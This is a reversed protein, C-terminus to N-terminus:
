RSNYLVAAEGKEKVRQEFFAVIRDRRKLLSEIETGSLYPRLERRLGERTLARMRALLNRDCAILSM